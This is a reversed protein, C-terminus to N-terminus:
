FIEDIAEFYELWKSTSTSVISKIYNRLMYRSILFTVIAGTYIGAFTIPLATLFGKWVSQQVVAYSYGFAVHLPKTPGLVIEMIVYVLIIVGVAQYPHIEIWETFHKFVEFVEEYDIILYVFISLYIILILLQLNSPKSSNTPQISSDM